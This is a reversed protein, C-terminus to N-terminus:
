NKGYRPGQYLHFTVLIFQYLHFTVLILQYMHFTVLISAGSITHQQIINNLPWM